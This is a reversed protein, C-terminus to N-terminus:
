PIIDVTWVAGLLSGVGGADRYIGYASPGIVTLSSVSGALTRDAVIAQALSTAASPDLLSLLLKQGEEHAATSVRARVALRYRSNAKGFALGEMFDEAPYVDVSPPTPDINLVPAVQLDAILPSATGCLTDEIQDALAQMVDALATM